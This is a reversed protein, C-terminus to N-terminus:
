KSEEYARLAARVADSASRSLKAGGNGCKNVARLADVLQECLASQAALHARLEAYTRDAAEFCADRWDNTKSHHAENVSAILTDVVGMAREVWGSADRSMPATM